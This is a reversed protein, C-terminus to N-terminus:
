RWIDNMKRYINRINRRARHRARTFTTSSRVHFLAHYGVTMYHAITVCLSRHPPNAQQSDTASRQVRHLFVTGYPSAHHTNNGVGPGRLENSCCLKYLRMCVFESQVYM